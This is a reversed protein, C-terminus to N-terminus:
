IEPFKQFFACLILLNYTCLDIFKVCVYLGMYGVGLDVYLVKRVGEGSMIGGEIVM